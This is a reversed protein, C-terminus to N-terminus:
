QLYGPTFFCACAVNIVVRSSCLIMCLKENLYDEKGRMELSGRLVMSRINFRPISSVFAYLPCLNLDLLLMSMMILQLLGSQWILQWLSLFNWGVLLRPLLEKSMLWQWQLMVTMHIVAATPILLYLLHATMKWFVIVRPLVSSYYWPYLFYIYIYFVQTSISAKCSIKMAERNIETVEGLWYIIYTLLQVYLM